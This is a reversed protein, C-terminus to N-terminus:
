CFIASAIMTVILAGVMPIMTRKVIAFPSIGVGGSVAIIVSTIPSITRGLSTAFQMPLILLLSSVGFERAFDPVLPSFAFFPANGSGMVIATITIFITLVVMVAIGTLGLGKTAEILYQITGTAMLGQAFIEGAVILTVVRAFQKGMADFFEMAKHFVEKPPHRLCECVLAIMFSMFMATPVDLKIGSFVYRSFIFLLVLPIVPLIAYFGPAGKFDLEKTEIGDTTVWASDGDVKDYHRQVFFHLIAITPAVLLSVPIQYSIFYSMTDLGAYKAALNANGSAPGLDLCGSTAILAAASLPSIGLRVLVPYMTVLLQMALGSASPIFVNMFQGVFYSLALVLYPSNLRSLPKSLYDAMRASAGILSMYRAYGAAAMIILGLGAVRSSMIATICKFPDFLEFGTSAVKNPLLKLAGDILGFKSLIIAAFLLILGGAFLVFQPKFHKLLYRVMFITVLLSLICGAM